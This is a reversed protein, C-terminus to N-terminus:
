LGGTLNFFTFFTVKLCRSKHGLINKLSFYGKVIFYFLFYDYRGNLIFNFTKKLIFQFHGRQPFLGTKEKFFGSHDDALSSKLVVECYKQYAHHHYYM